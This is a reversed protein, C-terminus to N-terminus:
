SDRGGLLERERNQYYMGYVRFGSDKRERKTRTICGMFGLGLTKRVRETRTTCGIFRFRPDKEGERNQYIGMFELGLTKERGTGLSGSGKNRDATPHTQLVYVHTFFNGIPTLFFHAYEDAFLKEIKNTAIM